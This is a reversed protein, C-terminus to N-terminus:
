LITTGPVQMQSEARYNGPNRFNITFANSIFGPLLTNNQYWSYFYPTSGGSVSASLVTQLGPLLTTYPAASITVATISKGLRQLM